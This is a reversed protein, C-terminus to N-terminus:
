RAAAAPYLNHVGAQELAFPREDAGCCGCHCTRLSPCYYFLRECALEVHPDRNGDVDLQLREDLRNNLGLALQWECLRVQLHVEM